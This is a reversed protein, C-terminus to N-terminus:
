KVKISQIIFRPIEKKRSEMLQSFRDADGELFVGQIIPKAIFPFICMSIMNIMLQFPDTRVITGQRYAEEVQAIIVMPAGKITMIREVVKSPDRNLEHLIFLPIQPYKMLGTIYLEVFVEIKEFLDIDSTILSGIQPFFKNFAEEFVAEFLRDKSRYYYHLLAKNIGAVDAIMQMSAGKLGHQLFVKRAAELIVSEKDISELNM